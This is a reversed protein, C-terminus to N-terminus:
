HSNIAATAEELNVAILRSVGPERMTVGVLQDAIEIATKNHSVCIFQIRKAMHQLSQAYRQLNTDDLAADVEDLVCLPAPNLDFLSFVLALATLVKEGGSLLKISNTKKGPPRAKVVVGAELLNDSTLELRAVGGGFFQTFYEKLNINVDDCIKKFRLVTEQDIRDIAKKLTALASELDQLQQQLYNQKESIAAYEETAAMNIPGLRQIQKELQAATQALVEENDQPDLQQSLETENYGTARLQQEHNSQHTELAKHDIRLQELESRLIDVNETALNHKASLEQLAVRLAETSQHQKRLAKEQAEQISLKKQLKKKLDKLKPRIANAKSICDQQQLTLEAQQKLLSEQETSQNESEITFSQHALEKEHQQKQVAALNKRAAVLAQSLVDKKKLYTKQEANLQSIKEEAAALENSTTSFLAEEAALKVNLDDLSARAKLRREAKEKQQLDAAKQNAELDSKQVRLLLLSEKDQDLQQQLSVLAENNKQMLKEAADVTNKQKVVEGDLAKVKVTSELVGGAEDGNTGTTKAGTRIWFPGVWFCETTIISEHAALLHRSAMASKKSEAVYISELLPAIPHAASLKQALSALKHTPPTTAIPTGASEVLTIQEDQIANLAGQLAELDAVMRGGLLRDLVLEVAAQWKAPVSLDQSVRAAQSLGAKTQWAKSSEDSDDIARALWSEVSAKEGLTKELKLRLEHLKQTDGQLQAILKQRKAEHESIATVQENVAADATAIRGSFGNVEDALQDAEPAEVVEGELHAVQPRMHETIATIQRLLSAKETQQRLAAHSQDQLAERETQWVNMAQEATELDGQAQEAESTTTRLAEDAEALQHRLTTTKSGDGDLLGAIQEHRARVDELTRGQHQLQDEHSRIDAELATVSTRLEYHEAQAQHTTAIGEDLKTQKTQIQLNLSEQETNAATLLTDHERLQKAHQEQHTRRDRWQLYLRKAQVLNLATTLKHYKEAVNAQKKLHAAQRESEQNIDTIRQINTYTQQIRTQTERRREKYKSIGAAEELHIRLDEPSAEVFQSITGQEVVSYGRSGLGTGSFLDTIDRRRCSQGNLYYRSIGDATLQRAVSIETYSAFRDQIRGDSNNFILEVYARSAPPRSDSGAFIVDSMATGRLQKASGEGLVWRVADVINSKGCGNPGIIVCLNKTFHLHEPDIFSKFGSLKISSLRM